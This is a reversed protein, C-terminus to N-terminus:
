RTAPKQSALAMANAAGSAPKVPAARDALANASIVAITLFLAMGVIGMGVRRRAPHQEPDFDQM